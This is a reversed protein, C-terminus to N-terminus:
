NATAYVQVVYWVGDGGLWVGTGTRSFIPDLLNMKHGPSRLWAKVVRDPMIRPPAPIRALNEGGLRARAGEAEFRERFTRRGPTPSVHEIEGRGALERAYAVAARSLAADEVLLGSGHQRRTANSERLVAAALDMFEAPGLIGDGDRGSRTSVGLLSPSAARERPLLGTLVVGRSRPRPAPASKRFSGLDITGRPLTDWAAMAGRARWDELMGSEFVFMEGAGAALAGRGSAMGLLEGPVSISFIAFILAMAKPKCNM